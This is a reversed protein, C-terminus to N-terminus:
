AGPVAATDGFGPAAPPAPIAQTTAAATSSTTDDGGCATLALAGFLAVLSSCLRPRSFAPRAAFAMTRRARLGCLASSLAATEVRAV